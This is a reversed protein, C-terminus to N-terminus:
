NMKNMQGHIGGISIQQRCNKLHFYLKLALSFPCTLEKWSFCSLSLYTHYLCLFPYHLFICTFLLLISQSNHYSFLEVPCCPFFAFSNWAMHFLFSILTGSLPILFILCFIFYGNCHMCNLERLQELFLNHNNNFIKVTCLKTM